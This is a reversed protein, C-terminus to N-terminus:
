RRSMLAGIVVGLAVSGGIALWPNDRAVVEMRRSMKRAKDKAQGSQEYLSREFQEGKEAAQDIRQHMQEAARRAFSEEHGAGATSNTGTSGQTTNSTAM